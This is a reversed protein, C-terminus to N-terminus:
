VAISARNSGASARAPTTRHRHGSDSSAYQRRACPRPSPKRRPRVVLILLHVQEVPAIVSLNRGATSSDAVAVTQRAIRIM